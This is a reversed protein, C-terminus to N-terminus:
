KLVYLANNSQQVLWRQLPDMPATASLSLGLLPLSACFDGLAVADRGMM